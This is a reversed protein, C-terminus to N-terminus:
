IYLLYDPMIKQVVFGCIFSFNQPRKHPTHCRLVNYRSLPPWETSKHAQEKTTADNM